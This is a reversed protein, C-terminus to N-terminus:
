PKARRAKRARFRAVLWDLVVSWVRNFLAAVAVGFALGVAGGVLLAALGGVAALETLILIWAVGAGSLAGAAGGAQLFLVKFATRPRRAAIGALASTSVIGLAVLGAAVAVALLALAMGAGILITLVVIALVAFVMLGPAAFDDDDPYPESDSESVREVAPASAACPGAACAERAPPGGLALLLALAACAARLRRSRKQSMAQDESM